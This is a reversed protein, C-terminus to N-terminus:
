EQTDRVAEEAATDDEQKEEICVNPRDPFVIMGMGNLLFLKELLAETGNELKYKMEEKYLPIVVYLNIQTGDETRFISIEEQLSGLLTGCLKTSEDYPEYDASNPITHGWGLWTGYEHPFRALYKMLQVPWWLYDPVDKDTEYGTLIDWEAPLLLLLEARELDKYEPLLEDPLMMPMASMGTTYIVHFDQKTPAKMVFVDVHIFESAIEHYVRTERGPFMAEMHESIEREYPSHQPERFEKPEALAEYEYIPSGSKSTESTFRKKESM